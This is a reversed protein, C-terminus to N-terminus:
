PERPRKMPAAAVRLHPGKGESADLGPDPGELKIEFRGGGITGGGSMVSPAHLVGPGIVWPSFTASFSGAIRSPSSHMLSFTRETHQIYRVRARRYAPPPIMVSMCDKGVVPHQCAVSRIADVLINEADDVTKIDHMRRQIAGLDSKRLNSDPTGHLLFGPGVHRPARWLIVENSGSRKLIGAVIPRVRPRRGRGWQWGSILLEFMAKRKKRSLRAPHFVDAVRSRILELTPGIHLHQRLPGFKIMGPMGGVESSEGAILEALWQDTPTRELYAPGTYSMTVFADPAEYLVTKNSMEDFPTRDRSVLRDNVQLIFQYSAQNLILTMPSQAAKKNGVTIARTLCKLRSGWTPLSIRTEPLIALRIAFRCAAIDDGSM